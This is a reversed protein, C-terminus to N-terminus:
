PWFAIWPILTLMLPTGKGRSSTQTESSKATNGSSDLYEGWHLMLDFDGHVRYLKKAMAQSGSIKGAIVDKWVSLTTEIRTTYDAFNDKSVEYGDKKM